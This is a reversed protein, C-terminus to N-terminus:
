KRGKKNSGRFDWKLRVQRVCGSPWSKNTLPAQSKLPVWSSNFVFYLFSNTSCYSVYLFYLFLQSYIPLVFRHLSLLLFVLLSLFIVLFSIWVYFLSLIPFSFSILLCFPLILVFLFLVRTVCFSFLYITWLFLLSSKKLLIQLFDCKRPVIKKDEFSHLHHLSCGFWPYVLVVELFVWYRLHTMQEFTMQEFFSSSVLIKVARCWTQFVYLLKTLNYTM